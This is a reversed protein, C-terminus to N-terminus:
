SAHNTYRLIRDRVQASRREARLVLASVTMTGFACGAVFAATALTLTM